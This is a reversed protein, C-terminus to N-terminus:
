PERHQSTAYRMCWSGVVPHFAVSISAAAYHLAIIIVAPVKDNTEILFPPQSSCAVVAACCWGRGGVVGHVRLAEADNATTCSSYKAKNVVHRLQSLCQTMCVSTRM